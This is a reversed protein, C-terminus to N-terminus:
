SRGGARGPRASDRLFRKMRTPGPRYLTQVVEGSTVVATGRLRELAQIERKLNRVGRDVDSPTLVVAERRETGYRLVLEVDWVRYGRQRMLTRVHNTLPPTTESMKNHLTM